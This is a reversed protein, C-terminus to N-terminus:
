VYPLMIGINVNDKICPDSSHLQLQTITTVLLLLKNFLGGTNTEHPNARLTPISCANFLQLSRTYRDLSWTMTYIPLRYIVLLSSRTM